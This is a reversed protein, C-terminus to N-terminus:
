TRVSLVSRIHFLDDIYEREAGGDGQDSGAVQVQHGVVGDSVIRFLNHLGGAVEVTELVTHEGIEATRLVTDVVDSGLHHAVTEVGHGVVAVVVTGDMAGVVREGSRVIIGFVMPLVEIVSDHAVIHDDVAQLLIDRFVKHLLSRDDATFAVEEAGVGVQTEDAEIALGISM